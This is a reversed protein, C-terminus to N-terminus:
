RSLYESFEATDDNENEGNEEPFKIGVIPIIKNIRDFFARQYLLAANLSATNEKTYFIAMVPLKEPYKSDWASILLENNWYHLKQNNKELYRRIGSLLNFSATNTKSDVMPYSCTYLTLLRLKDLYKRKKHFDVWKNVTDLHYDLCNGSNNEYTINEIERKSESSLLSYSYPGCGMNHDKRDDTRGDMPYACLVSYKEKGAPLNDLPYFVIGSDYHYYVPSSFKHDTRLYSFAVSKNEDIPRHSWPSEQEDLKLGHILLGSCQYAPSRSKGCSKAEDKYLKQMYSDIGTRYRTLGNSITTNNLVDHPIKSEDKSIYSYARNFTTITITISILLYVKARFSKM